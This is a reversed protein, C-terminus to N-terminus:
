DNFYEETHPKAEVGLIELAAQTAAETDDNEAIAAASLELASSQTADNAWEALTENAEADESVVPAKVPEMDFVLGLYPLNGSLNSDILAQVQKQQDVNLGSFALNISLKAEAPLVLSQNGEKDKKLTLSGVLKINASKPKTNRDFNSSAM